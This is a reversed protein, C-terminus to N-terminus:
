PYIQILCPYNIGLLLIITLLKLGVNHAILCCSPRIDLLYGDQTLPRAVYRLIVSLRFPLYEASFYRAVELAFKRTAGLSQRDLNRIRFEPRFLVVNHRILIYLFQISLWYPM